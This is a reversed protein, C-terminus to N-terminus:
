PERTFVVCLVDPRLGLITETYNGHLRPRVADAMTTSVIVLAGDCDAPPASWYGVRPLGRFYWPLPWYEDAIVRVVGDPSKALAADALGRFKLVDPASHVYAFPNRADAARVFAVRRTENLLLGAACAGAVYGARRLSVLAHAALLAFGPVLHVAHWPTKYPTASLVLVVLLTYIVTGRYFAAGSRWATVVGAFALVGLALEQWVLGGTRQWGFLQLYYWM